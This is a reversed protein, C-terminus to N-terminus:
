VRSTPLIVCFLRVEEIDKKMSPSFCCRFAYTQNVKFQLGALFVCDVEMRQCDVLFASLPLKFNELLLRCWDRESSSVDGFPKDSTVVFCPPDRRVFEEWDESMFSEFRDVISLDTSQKLHRIVAKRALLCSLDGGTSSSWASEMLRFFVVHVRANKRRFGNLTKEVLYTLHLYQGGHDWDLTRDTFAELLLCDGDVLVVQDEEYDRLM